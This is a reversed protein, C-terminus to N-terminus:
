LIKNNKIFNNLAQLREPTGVDSWYALLKQGTAKKQHIAACLKPLLPAYELPTDDFLKPSLVSIGAFTYHNQGDKKSLMQNNLCFDGKPNHLPNDVLWLHALNDNINHACMMEFPANTWVDANILLFPANNLLGDHLAKVIAGATELAPSESSIVINTPCHAAKQTLHAALIDGLYGTNVVINQIGCASLKEIHYDILAKDGVKLLPKPTNLTLPRMRRGEGAALIMAQTIRNHHMSNNQRSM